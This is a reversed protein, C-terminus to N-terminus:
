KLPLQEFRWANSVETEMTQNTEGTRELYAKYSTSEVFYSRGENLAVDDPDDKKHKRQLRFNGDASIFLTYKHRCFQHLIPWSDCHNLLTCKMGQHRHLQRSTSMSIFKLAHLAGSPLHIEGFHYSKTPVMPKVGVDWHRFIHGCVFCVAWKMM